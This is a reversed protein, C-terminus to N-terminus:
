GAPSRQRSAHSHPICLPAGSVPCAIVSVRVEFVQEILAATVVQSPPGAARIEGNALALLHSAYRCAHNLDHLVMVITRGQDRHLRELLDLMEVQHAIDLYTTPEDLLLLPTDQALAMAIWARQRQGGSLEDVGRQRVDGLGTLELAENVAESDRASWPSFLRQHPYRGRRVLQEVSLGDPARPSQPLLGLQVAVARTPQRAIDAGNLYVAGENPRLLRALARLLTTKGSANPGVVATIQGAPIVATLGSLVDPGGYCVRLGEARLQSAGEAQM